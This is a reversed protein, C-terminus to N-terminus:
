WTTTPHRYQTFSHDHHFHHYLDLITPISPLTAQSHSTLTHTSQCSGSILYLGNQKTGRDCKGWQVASNPTIKGLARTGRDCVNPHHYQSINVLARTGRDCGRCYVNTTPGGTVDSYSVQHGSALDKPGGTVSDNALRSAM